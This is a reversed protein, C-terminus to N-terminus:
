EAYTLLPSIVATERGRFKNARIVFISGTYGDYDDGNPGVGPCPSVRGSGEPQPLFVLREVRAGEGTAAAKVAGRRQRYVGVPTVAPCRGAIEVM